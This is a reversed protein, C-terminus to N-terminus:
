VLYILIPWKFGGSSLVPHLKAKGQGFEKTALESAMIIPESSRRSDDSYFLGTSCKRELREGAWRRWGPSIIQGSIGTPRESFRRIDNLYTRGAKWHRWRNLLDFPFVVEAEASWALQTCWETERPTSWAVTMAAAGLTLQADAYTYVTHVFTELCAGSIFWTATSSISYKYSHLMTWSWTCLQSWSLFKIAGPLQYYGGQIQICSTPTTTCASCHM